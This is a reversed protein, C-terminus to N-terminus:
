HVRLCRSPGLHGDSKEVQLPMILLSSRSAMLMDTLGFSASVRISYRVENLTRNLLARLKENEYQLVANQELAELLRQRDQCDCDKSAQLSASRSPSGCAEVHTSIFQRGAPSVDLEGNNNDSDFSASWITTRSAHGTLGGLHVNGTSLCSSSLQHTRPLPNILPPSGHAPHESRSLLAEPLLRIINNGSDCVVLADQQMGVGAVTGNPVYCLGQPGVLRSFEDSPGDGIVITRVWSYRLCDRRDNSYLAHCGGIERICDNGRDSVFLSGNAGVCLGTPQAFQATVCDDGDRHGATRQGAVTEVFWRGEENDHMQLGRICNNMTDAVLLEGYAGEIIASPSRFLARLGDRWGSNRRQMREFQKTDMGEPKGQSGQQFSQMGGAITRVVLKGRVGGDNTASVPQILRICHNGTDAVAITGNSCVCVASPSNFASDLVPGDKWGKKGSGAFTYTEIRESAEDVRRLASQVPLAAFKIKHHGTDTVFLYRADESACIGKPMLLGTNEITLVRMSLAPAECDPVILRIANNHVDTFALVGHSQPVVCVDYPKNLAANTAADGDSRGRRGTGVILERRAMVKACDRGKTTDTGAYLLLMGLDRCVDQVIQEYVVSGCGRVKGETMTSFTHAAQSPLRLTHLKTCVCRVVVREVNDDCKEISVFMAGVVERKINTQTELPYLDDQDVFDWTMIGFTDTLRTHYVWRAEVLVTDEVAGTAAVRQPATMDDDTSKYNVRICGYDVEPSPAELTQADMADERFKPWMTGNNRIARCASHFIRPLDITDFPYVSVHKSGFQGFVRLTHLQIDPTVGTRLAKTERRVLEAAMEMKDQSCMALLDRRRSEPHKGLNVYMHVLERLTGETHFKPASSFVSCLDEISTSQMIVTRRLALNRAESQQRRLREAAAREAMEAVRDSKRLAKHRARLAVLQMTLDEAEQRLGLLESRKRSRFRRASRAIQARRRTLKDMEEDPVTSSDDSGDESTQQPSSPATSPSPLTSDDELELLSELDDFNVVDEHATPVPMMMVDAMGDNPQDAFSFPAVEDFVPLDSWQAREDDFPTPM